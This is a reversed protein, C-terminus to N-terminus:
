GSVRKNYTQQQQVIRGKYGNSEFMKSLCLVDQVLNSVVRVALVNDGLRCNVRGALKKKVTTFRLYMM